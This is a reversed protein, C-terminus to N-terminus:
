LWWNMCFPKESLFTGHKLATSSSKMGSHELLLGCCESLYIFKVSVNFHNLVEFWVDELWTSIYNHDSSDCVLLKVYCTQLMKWFSSNFGFICLFLLITKHMRHVGYAAKKRWPNLRSCSMRSHIWLVAAQHWNLMSTKMRDARAFDICM